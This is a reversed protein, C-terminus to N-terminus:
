KCRMSEAWGVSEIALGYEEGTLWVVDSGYELLECLRKILRNYQAAEKKTLTGSMEKDHLENKARNYRFFIDHAHREVSFPYRKETM